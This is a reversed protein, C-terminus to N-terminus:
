LASCFFVGASLEKTLSRPKPVGKKWEQNGWKATANQDKKFLVWEQAVGTM